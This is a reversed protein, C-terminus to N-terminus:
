VTMVAGRMPLFLAKLYYKGKFLRSYNSELATKSLRRICKGMERSYGWSLFKELPVEVVNGEFEGLALIAKM